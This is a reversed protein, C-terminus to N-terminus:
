IVPLCAAPMLVITTCAPNRPHPEQVRCELRTSRQPISLQEFSQRTHQRHRFEGEWDATLVIVLQEMLM